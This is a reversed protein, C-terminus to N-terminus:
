GSCSLGKKYWLLGSNRCGYLARLLKVVVTGDKLLYDKYKKDMDIVVSSVQRDLRMYVDGEMHAELFAGSIDISQVYRRDIAAIALIIFLMDTCVTPSNTELMGDQEQLNGMAVLRSKVKELTGDKGYKEVIFM